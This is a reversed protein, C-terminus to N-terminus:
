NPQPRAGVKLSTPLEVSSPVWGVEGNPWKAWKRDTYPSILPRRIPGQRPSNASFMMRLSKMGGSISSILRAAGRSAFETGAIGWPGNSGFRIATRFIGSANPTQRRNPHPSPGAPRRRRSVLKRAPLGAVSARRNAIPGNRGPRRSCSGCQLRHCCALKRKPWPPPFSPPLLRWPWSGHSCVPIILRGDPVSGPRPVDTGCTQPDLKLSAHRHQIAGGIDSLPRRARVCPRHGTGAARPRASGSARTFVSSGNRPCM